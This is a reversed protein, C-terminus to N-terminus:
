RNIRSARAVANQRTMRDTPKRVNKIFESFKDLEIVQRDQIWEARARAKESYSEYNNEILNIGNAAETISLPSILVAADGIGERVHPTDVHISPIGYGAAEIASMGYTEYMSPVLLVRTQELYKYVDKPDVRPHLEVNPLRAAQEELDPIGHTPEAPSRVIIFRKDPYMEALSLMVQVGKNRLSSLCTYADGGTSTNSPLDSIPPHLVVAGPEGWQRASTETNYVAYDAYVVGARIGKGYKPPTHVNVISVAGAEQAALVAPLSLENQAIVVRANLDKLQRAIPSPDAKTNLVDPTNIQTVRIGDIYYEAQTNTLVVREGKVATMSRHLSVEGGMNWLPPYGHSLAVTTM